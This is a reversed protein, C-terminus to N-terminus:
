RYYVENSAYKCIWSRDPAEDLVGRRDSSDCMVESPPRFLLFWAKDYTNRTTQHLIEGVM